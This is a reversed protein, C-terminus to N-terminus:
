HEGHTILACLFSCTLVISVIFHQINKGHLKSHDAQGISCLVSTIFVHNNRNLMRTM